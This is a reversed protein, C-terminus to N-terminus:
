RTSRESLIARARAPDDCIIGDVGLTTLRRLEEPENVTWVNVRLGRSHWRALSTADVLSREPHVALGLWPAVADLPYRRATDPELLLATPIGPALVRFLALM